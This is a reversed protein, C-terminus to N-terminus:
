MHTCKCSHNLTYENPHTCTTVYYEGETSKNTWYIALVRAPYWVKDEWRAWVQLTAVSPSYQLMYVHPSFWVHFLIVCGTMFTRDREQLVSFFGLVQWRVIWCVMNIYVCTYLYMCTYMICLVCIRTHTFLRRWGPAKQVGGIEMTIRLWRRKRSTVKMRRERCVCAHSITSYWERECVFTYVDYQMHMSLRQLTQFLFTSCTYGGRIYQKCVCYTCMGATHMSWAAYHTCICLFTYVGRSGDAQIHVLIHVCHM